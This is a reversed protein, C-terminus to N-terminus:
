NKWFGSVLFQFGAVPFQCSFLSCGVVPWQGSVVAWKNSPSHVRFDEDQMKAFFNDILRDNIA